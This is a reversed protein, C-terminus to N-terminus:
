RGEARRAQAEHRELFAAQRATLVGWAPAKGLPNGKGDSPYWNRAEEPRAALDREVQGPDGAWVVPRWAGGTARNHCNVCFFRPDSESAFQADRCGPDDCEVLWRGHNVHAYLPPGDLAGAPPLALVAKPFHLRAVLEAVPVGAALMERAGPQTGYGTEATTFTRM